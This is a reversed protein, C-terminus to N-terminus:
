NHKKDEDTYIQSVPRLGICMRHRKFQVTDRFLKDTGHLWDLIGLLGYNCNYKLHHFDHFEPSPLWPLHYGSHHIVTTFMAVAYWLWTTLIHSRMVVPGLMIPMSNSIIYEIPHAYVATIGIPATWEHHKKHIRKYLPGWHVLRHSYYFLVEEILTFVAIDRLITLIDPLDDPGCPCGAKVKAASYLSMLPYGLVFLNFTVNRMAKWLKQYEVPQNKGPQTKYKLMWKPHGTLDAALLLGNLPWFVALMIASGGIIDM